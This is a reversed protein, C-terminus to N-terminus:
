DGTASFQLIQGSVAPTLVFFDRVVNGTTESIM